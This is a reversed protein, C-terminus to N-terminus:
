PPTAPVPIRRQIPPTQFLDNVTSVVVLILLIVFFALIVSSNSKDRRDLGDNANWLIRYCREPLFVPFPSPLADGNIRLRTWERFRAPILIRFGESGDQIVGGLLLNSPSDRECRLHRAFSRPLLSIIRVLLYKALSIVDSCSM